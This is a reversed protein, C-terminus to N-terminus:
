SILCEQTFDFIIRRAMAPGPHGVHVGVEMNTPPCCKNIDICTHMHVNMRIRLMM